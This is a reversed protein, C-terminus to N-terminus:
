RREGDIASLERCAKDTPSNGQGACVRKLLARYLLPRDVSSHAMVAEIRLHRNGEPFGGNRSTDAMAAVIYEGAPLDAPWGTIEHYAPVRCAGDWRADARGNDAVKLWLGARRNGFADAYGCNKLAPWFDIKAAAAFETLQREANGDSAM